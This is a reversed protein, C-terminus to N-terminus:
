AEQKSANGLSDGSSVILFSSRPGAAVGTVTEGTGLVSGLNIRTWSGTSVVGPLGLQGNANSGVVYVGGDATLVLMHAEGVAVDMVDREDIVVPSPVESLDEFVPSRGGHGWCYLDNGATLAALM